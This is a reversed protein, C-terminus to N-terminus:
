TMQFRENVRMSKQINLTPTPSTVLTSPSTRIAVTLANMVLQYKLKNRRLYKANGFLVRKKPILTNSSTSV